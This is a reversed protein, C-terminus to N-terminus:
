LTMLLEYYSKKSGGFVDVIVAAAKKPPLLPKLSTALAIVEPSELSVEVEPAGNVMVVFEGKRQNTDEAVLLEVEELTGRLMTEYTKTLERAVCVRRGAGLVTVMDRLSDLIRHSSEYFVLTREAM